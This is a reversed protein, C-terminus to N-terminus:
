RILDKLNDPMSLEYGLEQLKSQLVKRDICFFFMAKIGEQHENQILWEIFDKLEM